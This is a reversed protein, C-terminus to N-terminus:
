KCHVAEPTPECVKRQEQAATMYSLLGEEKKLASLQVLWDPLTNNPILQLVELIALGVVELMGPHDLAFVGNSQRTGGLGGWACLCISSGSLQKTRQLNGV